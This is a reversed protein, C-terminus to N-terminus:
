HQIISKYTIDNYTNWGYKICTPDDVIQWMVEGDETGRWAPALRNYGVSTAIEQNVMVYTQDFASQYFSSNVVYTMQANEDTKAKVLDGASFFDSVDGDIIFSNDYRSQISTYGAAVLTEFVVNSPLTGKVTIQTTNIGYADNAKIDIITYDYSVSIRGTEETKTGLAKIHDGIKFYELQNNPVVFVSGSPDSGYTYLPTYLVFM